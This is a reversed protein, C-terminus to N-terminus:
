DNMEDIPETAVLCDTFFRVRSNCRFCTFNSLSIGGAYIVGSWVNAYLAYNDKDLIKNQM